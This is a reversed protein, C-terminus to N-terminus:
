YNGYVIRGKRSNKEITFYFFGDAKVYPNYRGVPDLIFQYTNGEKTWHGIGEKDSSREFAIITSDIKQFLKENFGEIFDIECKITIESDFDSQHTVVSKKVKFDPIVMNLVKQVTSREEFDIRGEDPFFTVVIQVLCIFVITFLSIVLIVGTTFKISQLIWKIFAKM